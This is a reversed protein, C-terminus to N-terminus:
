LGWIYYIISFPFTVRDSITVMALSREILPNLGMWRPLNDGLSAQHLDLTPRCSLFVYCSHVVLTHVVPRIRSISLREHRGELWGIISKHHSIKGKRLRRSVEEAARGGEKTHIAM